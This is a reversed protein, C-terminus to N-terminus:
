KDVEKNDARVSTIFVVTMIVGMTIILVLAATMKPIEPFPINMEDVLAILNGVANLIVAILVLRIVVTWGRDM